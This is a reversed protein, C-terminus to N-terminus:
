QAVTGVLAARFAQAYAPDTNTVSLAINQAHRRRAKWASVFM